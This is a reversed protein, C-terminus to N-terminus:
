ALTRELSSAPSNIADAWGAFDWDALLRLRDAPIRSAIIRAPEDRHYVLPGGYQLSGQMTGDHFIVAFQGTQFRLLDTLKYSAELLVVRWKRWDIMRHVLQGYLALGTQPRDWIWIGTQNPGFQTVIAPNTLRYPVLGHERISLWSDWAAYHYGVCESPHTKRVPLKITDIMAELCNYRGGAM